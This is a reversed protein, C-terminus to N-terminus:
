PIRLCYPPTIYANFSRRINERVLDYDVEKSKWWKYDLERETEVVEHMMARTLGLMQDNLPLETLKTQHKDDCEQQLKMIENLKDM